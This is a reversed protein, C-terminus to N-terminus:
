CPSLPRKRQMQVAVGEIAHRVGDFKNMAPWVFDVRLDGTETEGAPHTM